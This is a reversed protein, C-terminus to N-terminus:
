SGGSEGGEEAMMEEKVCLMKHVSFLFLSSLSIFQVPKKSKQTQPPNIKIKKTKVKSM